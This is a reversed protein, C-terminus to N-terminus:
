SSLVQSEMDDDQMSQYEEKLCHSKNGLGDWVIEWLLGESTNQAQLIPPGQGM